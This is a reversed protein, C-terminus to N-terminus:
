CCRRCSSPLICLVFLLSYLVVSVSTEHRSSVSTPARAPGRTWRLSSAARCVSPPQVCFPTQFHQQTSHASSLPQVCSPTHFHQQILPAQLSPAAAHPAHATRQPGDAGARHAMPPPLPPACALPCACVCHRCPLVLWGLCAGGVLRAQFIFGLTTTGHNPKVFEVVEREFSDLQPCFAPLFSCRYSRHPFLGWRCPMRLAPQTPSGSPIDISTLASCCDELWLQLPVAPQCAAAGVLPLLLAPPCLCWQRSGSVDHVAPLPFCDAAPGCGAIADLGVTERAPGAPQELMSLDLKGFAAM